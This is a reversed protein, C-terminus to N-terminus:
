RDDGIRRATCITRRTQKVAVPRRAPAPEDCPPEVSVVSVDCIAARFDAAWGLQMHATPNELELWSADRATPRNCSAM